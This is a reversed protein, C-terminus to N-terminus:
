ELVTAQIDVTVPVLPDTTVTTPGEPFHEVLNPFAEQLCLHFSNTNVNDTCTNSTSGVKLLLVNHKDTTGYM